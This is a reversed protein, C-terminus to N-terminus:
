VKLLRLLYIVYEVYKIEKTECQASCRAAKENNNIKFKSRVALSFLHSFISLTHFTDVTHFSSTKLEISSLECLMM